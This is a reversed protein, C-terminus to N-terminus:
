TTIAATNPIAKIPTGVLHSRVSWWTECAASLAIVLIWLVLAHVAKSHAPLKDFAQKLVVAQQFGVLGPSQGDSVDGRLQCPRDPPAVPLIDSQEQPGYCPM